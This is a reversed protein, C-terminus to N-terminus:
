GAKQHKTPTKRQDSIIVHASWWAEARLNAATPTAMKSEGIKKM